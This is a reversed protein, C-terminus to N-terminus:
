KLPVPDSEGIKEVTILPMKSLVQTYQPERRFEENTRIMALVLGEAAAAQELEMADWKLIANNISENNPSCHLFDLTRVFLQPYFDLAVVHRGDRTERFFSDMKLFPSVAYGGPSPSRGNVTEWKDEFFGCFRRLAKRVDVSIHQGEGTAQRWLAAVAVSRAALGIAAMTGFRLPSPLIPDSGYFSLEGGCDDSTIGVDALVENVSKKLDFDPATAPHSLKRELTETLRNGNTEVSRDTVTATSM